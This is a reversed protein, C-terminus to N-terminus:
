VNLVRGHIIINLTFYHASCSLPYQKSAVGLVRGQQRSRQQLVIFISAFDYTYLYKIHVHLEEAETISSALKTLLMQRATHEVNARRKCILSYAQM